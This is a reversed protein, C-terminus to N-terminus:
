CRAARRHGARADARPLRAGAHHRRLQRPDARHDRGRDSRRADAFARECRRSTTGASSWCRARRGRAPMGTSGPCCRRRTPPAGPTRPPTPRGTSRTRGATTTARSACCWTAARSPAPSACRTSRAETGLQELVAGPRDVPMRATIAAAAEGELDHALSVLSGRQECRARHGGRDGGGAPPRPDAAGAGDRLRPLTNGDEDTLWAGEGRACSCRRRCGARAPRDRGRVSAERSTSARGPQSCRRQVRPTIM